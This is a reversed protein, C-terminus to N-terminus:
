SKKEEEVEPKQFIFKLYAHNEIKSEAIKILKNPEVKNYSHVMKYFKTEPRQLLEHPLGKELVVGKQIIIISDAYM